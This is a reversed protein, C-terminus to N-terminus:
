NSFPRQPDSVDFHTAIKKRLMIPLVRAKAADQTATGWQVVRGHALVLTIADPALAQISRVRPRQGAPLAALAAAVHAVARRTRSESPVVLLPVDKPATAVALYPDGTHDVLRYLGASRVYGVPSRETVTIIVTSPFSTSVEASYVEPLLEIRRTAAATDVRVLPTGRGIAARGEVEATSLSRLGRVEITRVGFVSSFAVVWVAVLAVVLASVVLLAIARRRSRRLGWQPEPQTQDITPAPPSIASM